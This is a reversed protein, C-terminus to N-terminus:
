EKKTKQSILLALLSIYESEISDTYTVQAKALEAVNFKCRGNTVEIVGSQKLALAIEKVFCLYLPNLPFQM